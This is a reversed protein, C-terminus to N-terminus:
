AVSGVIPYTSGAGSRYKRDDAKAQKIAKEYAMAWGQANEMDRILLAHHTLAGYVYISPYNTLIDNEDSDASLDSLKAYYRMVIEESGNPSPTLRLQGDEISYFAPTGSSNFARQLTQPPLPGLARRPETNRYITLVDLFDAPLAITASETLTTETEMYRVRLQQNIDATVLEYVVDAPARGIIALIRSKLTGFNM